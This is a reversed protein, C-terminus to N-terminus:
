YLLTFYSPAPSFYRSQLVTGTFSLLDVQFSTGAPAFHQPDTAWAYSGTSSAASILYSTTLSANVPTCDGAASQLSIFSRAKVRHYVLFALVALVLVLLYRGSLQLRKLLSESVVCAM